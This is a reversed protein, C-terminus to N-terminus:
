PKFCPGDVKSPPLSSAPVKLPYEGTPCTVPAATPGAPQAAPPATQPAICHATPVDYEHVEGAPCSMTSAGITTTASASATESPKRRRPRPTTLERACRTPGGTPPCAHVPRIFRQSLTAASGPIAVACSQIALSDPHSVSPNITVTYSGRVVRLPYGTMTRANAAAEAHSRYLWINGVIGHLQDVIPESAGDMVARGSTSLGVATRAICTSFRAAPGNTDHSGGGCAKAAIGVAVACMVGIFSQM